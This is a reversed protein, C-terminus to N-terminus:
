TPEASLAVEREVKRRLQGCAADIESGKRKRVKVSVGSRQLAEIFRALDEDSPRHYPLGEVDNWPILNVHAKRGALLRALERAHDMRDNLGGLVVYEFTVQRGTKEFFYSAAEM